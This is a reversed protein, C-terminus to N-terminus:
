TFLLAAKNPLWVSQEYPANLLSTWFGFSLQAVLCGALPTRKRAVKGLASAFDRVQNAQLLGERFFWMDTDYHHSLATHISNRLAVEVAHLSPVLAEALDINWFYNTVMALDSDGFKRYTELRVRSLPGYLNAVFDETM